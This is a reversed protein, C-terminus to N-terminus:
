SRTPYYSYLAADETPHAYFRPRIGDQTFGLSRYLAIAATNSVRVELTLRFLAAADAKAAEVLLRGIGRRRHEPSVAVNAIFAEDVVHHCGLYGVVTEGDMAVLFRAHPNQLEERLAAESWPDAFCCTELAALASLHDEAMPVIRIDSM